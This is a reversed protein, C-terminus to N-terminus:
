LREVTVAQEILQIEHPEIQRSRKLFCGFDQHVFFLHDKFSLLDCLLDNHDLGEGGVVVQVKWNHGHVPERRGNIVLAHAACFEREVSLEFM